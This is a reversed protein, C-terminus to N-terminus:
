QLCSTTFTDIKMEMNEHTATMAHMEVCCSVTVQLLYYSQVKFPSAYFDFIVFM